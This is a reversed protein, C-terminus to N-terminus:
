LRPGPRAAAKAATAEDRLNSAARAKDKRRQEDGDRKMRQDIIIRGHRSAELQKLPYTMQAAASSATALTIAAAALLRVIM